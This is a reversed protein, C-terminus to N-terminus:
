VQVLKVFLIDKTNRLKEITEKSVESDVNVVSIAVGDQAERGLSIGAINVKGDGLINGIAGVLGPKDNNMIFLMYGEPKAEVYVHNIKVIRPQHNGSLTGWISFTEQDTQIDVKICNVFEEAKNSKVEQVDIGRDKAIDAANIYNISDRLIPTLIGNVISLTVPATKYNNLDGSYVIKISNVAGKILQGSFKGIRFALNIYPELFQYSQADVSPFNAANVIGRGLLADRVTEAIEIAVNIQAESTSAGLHPTVVCNDFKFLGSDAPPPEEEYVDLACGAIKKEELAKILAQENIIGGRACNIIRANKKMLSFEKDGILNNTEDSKPIHITIYDATKLLDELTVAKVGNKDAVEKSLFPDFVIIDMGFAKAFKGVTSGIRGFGIIGLIKGRLEVGNFKSREWKGSKLSACAQPINRSLALIMSMTHEATSTTNGAPTNMAVVGKKTAASLDVNDLGVGARGIVKLNTANDLIDATVTTASRIILGHYDKIANKLEEPKLDYKCDVEFEKEERLIKIGEEALKDSILIKMM